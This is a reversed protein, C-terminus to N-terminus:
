SITHEIRGLAPAAIVLHDGPALPEGDEAPSLADISLLEGPLLREDASAEALLAGLDVASEAARAQSVVQGNVSAAAVLRQWCDGLDRAPVAIGAVSTPAAAVEVGAPDEGPAHFECLLVFAGIAAGAEEASANFLEKALVFGLRAVYDLGQTGAPPSLPTGSPVLSLANDFRCGAGQAAQTGLAASRRRRFHRVSLPQFPLVPAGPRAGYGIAHRLEWAPTFPSDYGLAVLHPVPKWM